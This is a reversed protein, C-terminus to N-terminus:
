SQSALYKGYADQGLWYKVMYDVGKSTITAGSLGDVGYPDDAAAKGKVVGLEVAGDEGYVKRDPWFSKWKPNDVEGGLGPTEKHEYYTIGRVTEGDGKLAIFGYLTSWLGKGYIPFVYGTLEDGEKIRYVEAVAERHAIGPLAGGAVEVQTETDRAAKKADYKEPDIGLEALREEGLVEGSSIEIFEREIREAFIRDVDASTRVLSELAAKSAGIAGYNPVAWTSGHSSIAVVSARPQQTLLPAAAQILWILPASNNRLTAEWNAPSLELLPRFGGAAANSVVIDLREFREGVFDVLARVDDPESVDARVAVAKRGYSQVAQVVEAAQDRSNRFNVIVDAGCAALREACARGIGRSAGTVLATQGTLDIM